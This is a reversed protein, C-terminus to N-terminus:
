NLNYKLAEVTLTEITTCIQKVLGFKKSYLAKNLGVSHTRESVKTVSTSERAKGNFCIRKYFSCSICHRQMPLYENCVKDSCSSGDMIDTFPVRYM